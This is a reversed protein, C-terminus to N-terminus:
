EKSNSLSTFLDDVQPIIHDWTYKEEALELAQQGLTDRFRPDKLLRCLGDVFEEDVEDYILASKSNQLDIGQAGVTTTVIPLGACLYDLVKLKTGGGQHLPVVALDAAALFAELDEVYGVGSIRDIDEFEPIGKGAIILHYDINRENLAPIIDEALTSVAQQNPYYSYHGHFVALPTGMPIDHSDLFEAVDASDANVLNSGSPVVSIHSEPVGFHRRFSDRDNKSVSVIYDAARVSASELWPIIYPAALRKYWPLSKKASKIKDTEFNQADYVVKADHGSLWSVVKAAIVGSFTKVQVIDPPKTQFQERLAKYLYPNFDNLRPPLPQEFTRVNAADVTPDGGTKELVTIDWGQESLGQIINWARVQDGAKPDTM